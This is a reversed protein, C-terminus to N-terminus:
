TLHLMLYYNINMLKIQCKPIALVGDKLPVLYKMNKM